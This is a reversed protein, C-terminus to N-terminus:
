SLESEQSGERKEWSFRNSKGEQRTEM